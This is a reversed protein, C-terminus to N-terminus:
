EAAMQAVEHNSKLAKLRPMVEKAFLKLSDATDEHTLLGAQALLLMHDV